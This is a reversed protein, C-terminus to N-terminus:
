LADPNERYAKVLQVFHTWQAHTTASHDGIVRYRIGDNETLLMAAVAIPILENIRLRTVKLRRRLEYITMEQLKLAAACRCGEGGRFGHPCAEIEDDATLLCGVFPEEEKTNIIPKDFEDVKRKWQRIFGLLKSSVDNQTM